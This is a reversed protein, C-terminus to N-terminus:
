YNYYGSAGSSPREYHRFENPGCEGTIFGSYGVGGEYLEKKTLSKPASVAGKPLPQVYSPMAKIQPQSAVTIGFAGGLLKKFVERRKM